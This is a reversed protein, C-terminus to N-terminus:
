CVDKGRGQLHVFLALTEVAVLLSSSAAMKTQM